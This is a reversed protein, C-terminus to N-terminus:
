IKLGPNKALFAAEVDDIKSKPPEGNGQRTGWSTQQTNNSDNEGNAGTTFQPFKEIVKDLAQEFSTTENVYSKALTIVDDAYEHNIAKRYCLQEATLREMQEKLERLENQSASASNQQSNAASNDSLLANMKESDLGLKDYISNKTRKIRDAIIGDLQEQTLQVFKGSGNANGGPETNANRDGNGTTKTGPNAAGTAPDTAAQNTAATATTNAGNEM